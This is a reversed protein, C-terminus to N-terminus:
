PPLFRTADELNEYIVVSPLDHIFTSWLAGAEGDYLWLFRRRRNVKNRVVM